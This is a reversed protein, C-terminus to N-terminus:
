HRAVRKEAAHPLAALFERKPRVNAFPSDADGGGIFCSGFNEAFVCGATAM